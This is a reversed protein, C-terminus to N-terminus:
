KGGIINNSNVNKVVLVYGNNQEVSADVLESVDVKRSNVALRIAEVPIKTNTGALISDNKDYISVGYRNTVSTVIVDEAVKKKSTITEGSKRETKISYIDVVSGPKAGGTRTYDTKLTIFVLDKAENPDVIHNKQIGDGEALNVGIMKGVLEDKTEFYNSIDMDIPVDIYKLDTPNITEYITLERNTAVIKQTENQAKINKNLFVFSTIATGLGILLIVIIPILKKKNM